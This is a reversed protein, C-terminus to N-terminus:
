NKISNRSSFKRFLRENSPSFRLGHFRHSIVRILTTTGGGFTGWVAKSLFPFTSLEQQEAWPSFSAFSNWTKIFHNEMTQRPLHPSFMLHKHPALSRIADNRAPRSRWLRVRATERQKGEKSYILLFNAVNRSLLNMVLKIIIQQSNPVNKFAGQDTPAREGEFKDKYSVFRPM